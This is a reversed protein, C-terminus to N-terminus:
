LKGKVDLIRTAVDLKKALLDAIIQDMTDPAVLDIWTVKSHRESGGRYNRAEAQLRQELSYGQSYFIAYDSAVLNIGIGGAAQNSIFVRCKPDTEFRKINKDRDKEPVKGHLEAFDLGLKKCVEIIDAYNEHFVSWVIVKHNPALDELLEELAKIRPNDKIKYITGDDLKAYGTGIQLLRLARTVALQAVVARPQDTKELDDVYAIYAKKMEEYLRKQEPSHEIFIQKQVLPPLDLCDEKKVRSSRKAIMDHFEKFVEPRPVWKPFYGPKGSWQANEDEFWVNRFKWFNGGFTKGKDIFRFINFIDLPTNLIPTGTLGFRYLAGDGLRILLKGRKSQPNKIRHVEDAVLAEPIWDLMASYLADMEVAEFNTIFIHDQRRGETDFAKERFAKLRKAGSGQLVTVQRPHIKSYEGIERQWNTCVVKPCFIITRLLRGHRAYIHRLAEITSRSKGTGPEHFLGYGFEGASLM